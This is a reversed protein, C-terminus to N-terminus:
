TEDCHVLSVDVDLMPGGKAIVNVRKLHFIEPSYKAILWPFKTQLQNRKCCTELNMHKAKNSNNVTLKVMPSRMRLPDVTSKQWLSIDIFNSIPKFL